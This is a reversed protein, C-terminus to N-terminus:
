AVKGRRMPIVKRKQDAVLDAIHQGWVDMLQRREDIYVARNYTKSVRNGVMHGMACDVIHPPALGLENAHTSFSRRLDHLSWHEMDAPLKGRLDDMYRSASFTAFLRDQEAIVPVRKIIDIAQSSLCIIFPKAIKVREAPLEIMRKDLAIEPWLLGVIENRRAGLLMLLKVVDGFPSGDDAAKWVSVLEENSLVRERGDTPGRSDIDATPNHDRYGENIAWRMLGSLTTCARDSTVNGRERAMDSLLPLIDQRTIDRLPKRHLPKWHKRLYLGAIYLTRPRTEEAYAELYPEVLEGLTRPRPQARAKREEALTDTGMKAKARVTEALDRMADLNGWTAVGLVMRRQVGKASYKVCWVPPAGSKYTRLAFGPHQEDFTLRDAKVKILKEVVDKTFRATPM